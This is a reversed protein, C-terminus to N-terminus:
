ELPQVDLVGLKGCGLAEETCFQVGIDALNLYIDITLKCFASVVVTLVVCRIFCQELYESINNTTFVTRIETSPCSNNQKKCDSDTKKEPV